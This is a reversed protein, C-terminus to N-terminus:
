NGPLSITIIEEKSFPTGASTLGEIIIRLPGTDDTSNFEFSAKGTEPIAISPNWYVTSRFDPINSNHLSSYAPLPFDWSTNQGDIVVSSGRLPERLNGSKTEVIVFGNKGLIGFPILKKPDKVIKITVIDAPKLTLFFDTNLTAVEDIIYVPDGDPEMPQNLRIGVRSIGGQKRYYLTPVVEKILDELTSFIVYDKTHIVLDAGGVAKEFEGANSAPIGPKAKQVGYYEFSKAILRKNRTFSGYADNAAGEHSSPASPLDVSLKDWVIQFDPLPKGQSSEAVTMIEDRGSFVPLTFKIKGDLTFTEYHFRTKQLYFHVKTNDPVPTAPTGVYVTGTLRQVEKFGYAPELYNDEIIKKWPIEMSRNILFRDLDEDLSGYDTSKLTKGGTFLSTMFSGVDESNNNILSQIIRVTLNGKIPQGAKDSISVDVHIKQRPQFHTGSLSLSAVVDPRYGNFFDRSAYVNGKNDLLSLHIMGPPLDSSPFNMEISNESTQIVSKKKVKSSCTFLLFLDTKFLDSGEAVRLNLRISDDIIAPSLTLACGVNEVAPFPFQKKMGNVMAFYSKNTRPTLSVTSYGNKNTNTRLVENGSEDFVLIQAENLNSYLVIRNPVGAVLHGGESVIGLSHEADRELKKETVVQIEKRFINEKEFNMNFPCYAAIHYFGPPVSAPIVIQNHGSGESVKMLFHVLSTGHSDVLDIDLLQQGPVSSMDDYYYFLRFWVTDGPSYKDQNLVMALSPKNWSSSYRLYKEEFSKENEQAFSTCPFLVLIFILLKKMGM